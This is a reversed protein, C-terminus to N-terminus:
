CFGRRSLWFKKEAPPKCTYGTLSRIGAVQPGGTM